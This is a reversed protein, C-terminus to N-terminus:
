FRVLLGINFTDVDAEGVTDGGISAYRQWDARATLNKNIHWALGAGITGGTNSESVTRVETNAAYVGLKGYISFSETVPLSPVVLLEFASATTEVSQGFGRLELTALNDTYGAELALNRNFQYGGFVKFSTTTDECSVGSPLGGEECGGSSIKSTGASAGVYFGAEQAAAAGAALSLALAIATRKM